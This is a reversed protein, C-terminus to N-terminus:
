KQKKSEFWEIIYVYWEKMAPEFQTDLIQNSWCMLGLATVQSIVLTIFSPMLPAPAGAMFLQHSAIFTPIMVIHIHWSPRDNGNIRDMTVKYVWDSAFFMIIIAAIPHWSKNATSVLEGYYTYDLIGQAVFLPLTAYLVAVLAAGFLSLGKWSVQPM